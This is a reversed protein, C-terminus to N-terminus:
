YNFFNTIRNESNIADLFSPKLINQGAIMPYMPVNTYVIFNKTDTVSKEAQKKITPAMAITAEHLNFDLKIM